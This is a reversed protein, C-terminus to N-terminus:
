ELPFTAAQQRARSLKSGRSHRLPSKPVRSFLATDMLPMNSWICTASFCVLGHATMSDTVVCVAITPDTRRM